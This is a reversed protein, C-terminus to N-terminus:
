SGGEAFIMCDPYPEAPNRAATMTKFILSNRLSSFRECCFGDTGVTLYRCCDAKRGVGCKHPDPKHEPIGLDELKKEDTGEGCTTNDYVVLIESPGCCGFPDNVVMGFRGDKSKVRTGIEM